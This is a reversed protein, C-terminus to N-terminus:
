HQSAVDLQEMLNRAVGENITLVTQLSSLTSMWFRLEALVEPNARIDALIAESQDQSIPSECEIMRQNEFDTEEHCADWVHRTVVSPMMGRITNMYEPVHKVIFDDRVGSGTIYYEALAARLAQNEILRLDGVGRLEDYTADNQWYPFLQSAQFFALVTPWDERREPESSEAYALAQAGYDSVSANFDIRVSLADIDSALDNRIRELYDRGRADESRAANWNSVQIGIFVGVVVIVFDIAIATWNQEQVHQTIRRLIM